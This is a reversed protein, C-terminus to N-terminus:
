SKKDPGEEALELKWPGFETGPTYDLPYTGLLGTQPGIYEYVWKRPAGDLGFVLFGIDTNGVAVGWGDVVDFVVDQKRYTGSTVWVVQGVKFAKIDM